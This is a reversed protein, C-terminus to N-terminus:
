KSGKKSLSDEACNFEDYKDIIEIFSYLYLMQVILRERTLRMRYTEIDFKAM